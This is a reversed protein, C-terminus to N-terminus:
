ESQEIRLEPYGTDADFQRVFSYGLADGLVIEATTYVTSGAQLHGGIVAGSADALAIHLHAGGPEVTGTLSVIEFKRNFYRTEQQDALRLAAKRLSGVCTIVFGARIGNENVFYMIEHKIDQGPRLRLPYVKM